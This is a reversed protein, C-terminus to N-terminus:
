LFRRRQARGQLVDTEESCFQFFPEHTRLFGQTFRKLLLMALPDKGFVLLALIFQLKGGHEITRSHMAFDVPRKDLLTDPPDDVVFGSILLALAFFLKALEAFTLCVFVEVLQLAVGADRLQAVLKRHTGCEVVRQHILEEFYLESAAELRRRMQRGSSGWEARGGYREGGM